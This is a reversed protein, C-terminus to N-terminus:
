GDFNDKGEPAQDVPGQKQSLSKAFTTKLGWDNFCLLDEAEEASLAYKNRPKARKKDRLDLVIAKQKRRNCEDIVLDLELDISM